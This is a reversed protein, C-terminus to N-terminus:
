SGAGSGAEASERRRKERLRGADLRHKAFKKGAVFLVPVELGFEAALESRSDVDVVDTRVEFERTEEEVVANMTDCLHCERRTYLVLDIM